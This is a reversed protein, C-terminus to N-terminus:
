SSLHVTKSCHAEQIDVHISGKLLADTNAKDITGHNIFHIYLNIVYCVNDCILNHTDIHLLIMNYYFQM